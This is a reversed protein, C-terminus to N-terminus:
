ASPQNEAVLSLTEGQEIDFSVDDVAYVVKKKRKFIGEKIPFYKKLNAVRILKEMHQRRGLQYRNISIVDYKCM